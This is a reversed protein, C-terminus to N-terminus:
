VPLGAGRLGMRLHELDRPDPLPTSHLLWEGYGEPGGPAEGSWEREVM